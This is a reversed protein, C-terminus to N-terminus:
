NVNGGVTYLPERKEVDEQWCKNKPNKKIITMRVSTLHYRMTTKIQLERIILLTSCIKMHRKAIQMEQTSLHRNLGEAWKKIMKKINLQILQKFINSIFGKDTMDNAFIKEWEPQRKM